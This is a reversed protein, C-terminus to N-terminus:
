VTSLTVVTVKYGIKVLLGLVDSLSEIRGRSYPSFSSKIASESWGSTSITIDSIWPSIIIIERENIETEDIKAAADFLVHCFVRLHGSHFSPM